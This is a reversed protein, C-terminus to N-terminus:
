EGKLAAIINAMDAADVKWYTGCDVNGSIVSKLLDWLRKNEEILKPLVAIARANYKDQGYYDYPTRCDAIQHGSVSYIMPGPKMGVHWPGATM